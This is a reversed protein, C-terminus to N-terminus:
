RLMRLLTELPTPDNAADHTTPMPAIPDFPVTDPAPAAATQAQGPLAYAASPLAFPLAPSAAPRWVPTPTTASPTAQTAPAFPAYAARQAPVAASALAAAGRGRRAFDALVQAKTKGHLHPNARYAARTV